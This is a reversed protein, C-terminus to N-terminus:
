DEAVSFNITVKNNDDAKSTLGTVVAKGYRDPAIKELLLVAANVDTNSAAREITNLLDNIKKSRAFLEVKVLEVFRELTVGGGFLAKSLVLNSIEANHASEEISLGKGRGDMYREIAYNDIVNDYIAVDNFDPFLKKTELVVDKRPLKAEELLHIITDYDARTKDKESM